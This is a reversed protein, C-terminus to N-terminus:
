TGSRRERATGNATNRWSESLHSRAPGRRPVCGVCVPLLDVRRARPLGAPNHPGPRGDRSSWPPQCGARALRQSSCSRSGLGPRVRKRKALSGSPCGRSRDGRRCVIRRTPGPTRPVLGSPQGTSSIATGAASHTTMRRPRRSLRRGAEEARPRAMGRHDDGTADARRDPRALCPGCPIWRLAAHSSCLQTTPM